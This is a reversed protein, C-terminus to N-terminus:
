EYSRKELCVIEEMAMEKGTVSIVTNDIIFTKINVDDALTNFLNFQFKLGEGKYKMYSEKRTWIKTFAINEDDCNRVYEREESTFFFEMVQNDMPLIAEGDIGIPGNIDFAVIMNEGAYSRNFYCQGNVVEPKEGAKGLIKPTDFGYEKELLELTIYEAMLFDDRKTRDKILNMRKRREETLSMETYKDMLYENEKKFNRCYFVKM